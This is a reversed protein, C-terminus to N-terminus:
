IFVDPWAGYQQRKNDMGSMQLKNTIFMSVEAVIFSYCFAHNKIVLFICDPDNKTM